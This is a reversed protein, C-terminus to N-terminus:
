RIGNKMGTLFAATMLETLILLDGTTYTVMMATLFSATAALLVVLHRYNM